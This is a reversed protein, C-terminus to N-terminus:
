TLAFFARVPISPVLELYIHTDSFCFIVSNVRLEVINDVITDLKNIEKAVVM